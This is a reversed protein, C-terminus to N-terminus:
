VMAPLHINVVERCCNLDDSAVGPVIVILDVEDLAASRILSFNLHRLQALTRPHFVIHKFKESVNFFDLQVFKPTVM